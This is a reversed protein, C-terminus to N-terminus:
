GPACPIPFCFGDTFAPRGEWAARVAAQDLEGALFYFLQRAADVERKEFLNDMGTIVYPVGAEDLAAMIPGGDRRVSRLLIAMDSWSIGREDSGERIPLGRLSHCTQAIYRSEEEPSLSPYSLLEMETIVSVCIAGHPLPEALRDGLHYLVVNTDLVATVAM